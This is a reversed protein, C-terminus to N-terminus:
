RPPPGASLSTDGLLKPKLRGLWSRNSLRLGILAFGATVSVQCLYLLFVCAAGESLVQERPYFIALGAYV